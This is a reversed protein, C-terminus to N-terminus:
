TASSFTLLPFGPFPRPRAGGAKGGCPAGAGLGGWGSGAVGARICMGRDLAGFWVNKMNTNPAVFAQRACTPSRWARTASQQSKPVLCDGCLGGPAGVGGGEEGAREAVDPTSSTCSSLSPGFCVHFFIHRLRRPRRPRPAGLATTLPHLVMTVPTSAHYPASRTSAAHTFLRLSM